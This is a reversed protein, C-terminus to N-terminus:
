IDPTSSAQTQPTLLDVDFRVIHLLGNKRRATVGWSIGRGYTADTFADPDYPACGIDVHKLKAAQQFHIGDPAYQVTFREPGSADVLAAVGERHPWVCVCHGSGLVPNTNHKTFPGTPSDAIALGWRTHKWTTPWNYGKFYLWYKGNRVIVHTDDVLYSDWEGEEGPRLVPQPLKKWPGRPDDAIALGISRKNNPGRVKWPEGPLQKSGTYYLYYKGGHVVMYPTIVGFNDWAAVPGKGIAEGRETWGRGDKSTAYYVSGTYLNTGPKFRTYWVFYTDRVKIVNSPDCRGWQRDYGIGTIESVRYNPTTLEPPIDVGLASSGSVVSIWILWAITVRLAQM